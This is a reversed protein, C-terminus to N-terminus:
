FEFNVKNNTEQVKKIVEKNKELKKQLSNFRTIYFYSFPINLIALKFSFLLIFFTSVVTMLVAIIDYKDKEKNM